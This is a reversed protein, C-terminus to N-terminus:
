KKHEHRHLEMDKIQLRRSTYMNPLIGEIIMKDIGMHNLIIIQACMNGIATCIENLSAFGFVTIHISARLPAV